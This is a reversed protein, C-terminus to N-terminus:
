LSSNLFFDLEYKTMLYNSLTEWSKIQIAIADRIRQLFQTYDTGGERFAYVAAERQQKALPLAEQQYFQWSEQWKAYEQQLERYKANVQLHAEDREQEAIKRSIKASQTQGLNKNFFLPLGIGVQFINYGPEGAVKQRGYELNLKPFFGARKVQYDAQAVEIERHAYELIPHDRIADVQKIIPQLVAEFAKDQITFLSDGIFWRNFRQLSTQYDRYAQKKKLAIEKVQNGAALYDLKSTAGTEYQLKAAKELDTFVSDLESYLKFKGKAAYVESWAKQVERKLELENLNLATERLAIEKEHFKNKAGIGLIDVDKQSVGFTTYVGDASSLGNPLEEGGTFFETSGMDWATKKLAKQKDIRLAAAKLAPYDQKAKEVAEEMALSHKKKDRQLKVEQASGPIPFFLISSGICFFILMMTVSSAAPKIRNKKSPSEVIFYLIPLIILTLLTASILGGIVVTALPRQVSAGAGTSLAMPLFGMIAALATLLIPRLREETAMMLREKISSIGEKELTNLRGILVLGNLVAVGFLVIFGVGASISFPMDRLILAYVGGIAALPVAVYIMIAESISKLAFYLMIFILLLAIPVVIALRDKARQLNEFAGGYTVQYGPPLELEQEIRNQIELVMSEVDRDRVNIGVSIRRSTNDRSIQMPGPQFSIDALEQMPIQYGSPLDVLLKKLDEISNRYKDELRVVLDFRKEDEFIVGAKKGAFAMAIYDNLKEINLGYQAVKKRDFNVTIQPLGDTAELNVESAGPVTEAIRKIEEGKESLVKLDPGYLKVAVDERVGTLLENFRLEVPQSFAFNVGVIADLEEQIKDILEDKTRASVWNKKDKDLIIYSDSIDMPMPDTPIDAVGIRSVMTKVEPFREKLLKEIRTTTEITETLSTGPRLLMQLAIDGEDISPIFEGGMKKFSYGGSLLLIFAISLCLARYQLCKELFPHYIGQIKRMIALSLRHMRDELRQFWGNKEGSPKMLLSTVMPVYTLCLIIAGLVAFGFTFAMPIFMKGEVGTLFLIPTFVILIIVQGFFASNMVESTAKYVVKDMLSQSVANKSTRIRKDIAHVTGEVIIVAGDVIIGFDIAGLSMLNAWVGFIRMLIFAFLLSLPILSATVIGGRISGLLIVLVFIVILAGEILNTKITNTTHGILESSELFPKIELGDPLTKEIEAMKEKVTRIVKNQNEGKLMLIMGGVAEEGDQTFAGYRVQNGYQVQAIDEILIPIDNETKVVIDRIDELSQILGDGRIFNATKNKEIYAGGTNINNKELAEFVKEMSIDMANLKGPDLAIEYQKVFGGFSNVEVVGKTLAMQRTVIWDQISRLETPSFANEYGKKPQLTYQYIEGLGTTIPGMEPSGFQNPIDEKVENLKESILQRPLYTGMGDKFVITVVSLGFRSISRVEEVDPLNSMALEVPYTVFQEIDETALNPSVTIVQVQNNTIDPQAGLNITYLSYSGVGILAAVFLGIIFKNKISYAIIRNIM